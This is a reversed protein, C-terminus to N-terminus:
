CSKGAAAKIHQTMKVGTSSSLGPGDDWVVALKLCRLSGDMKQFESMQVTVVQSYNQSLINFTSAYGNLSSNTTVPMIVTSENVVLVSAAYGESRPLSVTHHTFDQQLNMAPDRLLTNANIPSICTDAHLSGNVRMSGVDYGPNLYNLIAKLEEYGKQNTRKSQGVLVNGGFRVVDGFELTSGTQDHLHIISMGIRRLIGVIYDVEPSRQATAPKAVVAVLEGSSSRFVSAIDEVFHSDPHATAPYVDVKVGADRLAQAYARHQEVALDYDPSGLDVTTHGKAINRSPEVMVVHQVRLGDKALNVVAMEILLIRGQLTYLSESM